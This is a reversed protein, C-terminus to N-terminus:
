LNSKNPALNVLVKGINKGSQLYDVADFVQEIGNFKDDLFPKLDGKQVLQILKTLHKSFDQVYHNLFFGSVTRSGNLLPYTPVVDTMVSSMQNSSSNGKYNSMAGIVILRGKVALNEFCIKLFDGGVSEYVIDVGKPFEKKLVTALDEKKYNIVRDCGLEKLMAVKDDSSCTGIVYNGALKALRVAIQGAGGAAATVLVKESHTMRGMHELALSSTLGTAMLALIEKQVNPLPITSKVPVMQYEAFAGYQMVAVASGLKVSKLDPAHAVIQGVSEFGPYMPPKHRPDYRGASFNIDSANIGCYHNKVVVYGAPLSKLFADMQITEITAAERFNNTLKNVVLRRFSTPLKISTM